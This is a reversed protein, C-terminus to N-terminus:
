KRKTKKTFDDDGYIVPTATEIITKVKRSKCAPCRSAHEYEEYTRQEEFM